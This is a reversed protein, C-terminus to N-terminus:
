KKKKKPAKAKGKKKKGKSRSAFEVRAVRGRWQAQLRTMQKVVAATKADAIQTTEAIVANEGKEVALDADLM